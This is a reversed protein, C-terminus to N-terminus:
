LRFNIVFCIQAPVKPDRERMLEDFIEQPLIARKRCLLLISHVHIWGPDRRVRNLSLKRLHWLNFQADRDSLM